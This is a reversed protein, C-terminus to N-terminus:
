FRCFSLIFHPNARIHVIVHKKYMDEKNCMVYIINHRKTAKKTFRSFLPSALSLVRSLVAVRSLIGITYLYGMDGMFKLYSMIKPFAVFRVAFAVFRKIMQRAM